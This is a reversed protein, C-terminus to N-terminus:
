SFIKIFLARETSKLSRAADVHEIFNTFENLSPLKGTLDLTVRRLFDNDTTLPATKDGSATIEADILRDIEASLRSAPVGEAANLTPGLVWLCALVALTRQTGPLTM